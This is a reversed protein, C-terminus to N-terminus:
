VRYSIIGMGLYEEPFMSEWDDERFLTTIGLYNGIFSIGQLKYKKKLKIAKKESIRNNDISITTLNNSICSKQIAELILELSKSDEPSTRGDEM